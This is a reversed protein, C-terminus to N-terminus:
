LYIVCSCYPRLRTQDIEVTGSDFQTAKPKSSPVITILSPFSV